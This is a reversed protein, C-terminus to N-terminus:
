KTETGIVTYIKNNKQIYVQGNCVIKKVEESISTEHLATATTSFEGTYTQLTTNQKDEVDMNFQYHTDQTLGTVTFRFGNGTKEATQHTKGIRSPAFAISNLQGNANFVLTCFVEGDKYIDLTYTNASEDSPWVFEAETNSPTVTLDDAEANDANICRVYKFTGFVADLQYARLNDCPIHVYVNYNSFSSPEAFPPEIAYSYVDYLTRCDAFANEGISLLTNPLEIKSIGVFGRFANNGIRTIGREMIIKNTADRLLLWPIDFEEYDYMDGSGSITLVNNDYRWYLNDGCQGSYDQDFEAILITDQTLVITRPNDANKDGWQAFHYGHVSNAVLTITDLYEALYPADVYGFESPSAIASVLYTNKEFIAIYTNSSTATFTYPNDTSLTNNYQDSWHSFHYGYNPTASLTITSNYEAITDGKTVGRNGENAYSSITYLDISFKASFTSDQTLVVIRPNDTNKDNWEIFHYGINSQAFIIATDSNCTNPQMVVASGKATDTSNTHITYPVDPEVFTVTENKYYDGAYKSFTGCPIHITLGKCGSFAGSGITQVSNPITIDTLGTCRYFAKNGIYTLNNNLALSKLGSCNYFAYAGIYVVSDGFKVDSLNPMDKCVNNSLTDTDFIITTIQQLIDQFLKNKSITANKSNCIITTIKSCDKFTYNKPNSIRNNITIITLGTCGQFASSGITQVSSPININTLGTCGQFASNGITQVSSPINISTLGTCGQFASSEIAQVSSPININTLGTCGQFASNEITQVSSPINISDISTCNTFANGGIYILNDTFHLGTLNTMGNCSYATITDVNFTIDSINQKSNGLIFSLNATKSNTIITTLNNCDAFVDNSWNQVSSPININTLGTCGQFADYGIFQVGNPILITTLKKMGKCIGNAISDIGTGFEFSTIQQEVGNFVFDSIHGINAEWKISTLNKCNNFVSASLYKIHHPITVSKIGTCGDFAQQGIKVVSHSLDISNIGTCDAFAGDGIELIGEGMPLSTLNACGSFASNRITTVSQPISVEELSSCGSFAFEGINKIGAPIDISLLNICYEFTRNQIAVLGLPLTISNLWHCNNFAAEGISKMEKPLTISTLHLNADFAYDGINSVSEPITITELACASFAWDGINTLHQPLVISSLDSCGRFTYEAISTVNNSMFVSQLRTCGDFAHAQIDNIRNSMSIDSIPSNAFAYKGITTVYYTTGEWIISDPVVVRDLTNYNNPSNRYEYTVVAQPTTGSILNYYLGDVQIDYAYLLTLCVNCFLLTFLRKM